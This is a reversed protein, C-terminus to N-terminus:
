KLREILADVEASQELQYLHILAALLLDRERASLEVQYTIEAM